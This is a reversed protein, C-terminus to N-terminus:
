SVLGGVVGVWILVLGISIGITPKEFWYRVSIGLYLGPVVFALALYGLNSVAGDFDAIAPIGIGPGSVVMGLSHSFNFGIWAPYMGVSLSPALGTGSPVQMMARLEPDLPMMPGGDPHSTATFFTHALGLVLFISAGVIVPIWM